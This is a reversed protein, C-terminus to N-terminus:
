VVVSCLGQLLGHEAWRGTKCLIREAGLNRGFKQIFAPFSLARFQVIGGFLGKQNQYVSKHELGQLRHPQDWINLLSKQFVKLLSVEFLYVTWKEYGPMEDQLCSSSAKVLIIQLECGSCVLDSPHKSSNKNLGLCSLAFEELWVASRSKDLFRQGPLQPCSPAIKTRIVNKRHGTAEALYNCRGQCIHTLCHQWALVRGEGKKSTVAVGCGSSPVCKGGALSKCTEESRLIINFATSKVLCAWTYANSM